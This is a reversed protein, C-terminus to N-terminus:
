HVLLLIVNSPFYSVHFIYILQFSKSNNERISVGNNVYYIGGVETTTNGIAPVYIPLVTYSYM